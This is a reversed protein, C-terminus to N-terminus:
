SALQAELLAERELHWPRDLILNILRCATLERALDAHSLTALDFHNARDYGEESGLPDPVPLLQLLDLPAEFARRNSQPTLSALGM